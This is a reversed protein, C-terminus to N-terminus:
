IYWDELFKENVELQLSGYLPAKEIVKKNKQIEFSAQLLMDCGCELCSKPLGIEFVEGVASEICGKVGTEVCDTRHHKSSFPVKVKIARSGVLEICLDYGNDILEAFKGSIAFYINEDDFGWFLKEFHFGSSDMASFEADLAISGAGLWEYFDTMKGDIDPMIYNKPKQKIRATKAKNISEFLKVPPEVAILKYINLLHKRFLEDFEDAQPTYHDDGYWWFWDSGEAIMLEKQATSLVDPTITSKAEEFAIKTQSLLEWARNKEEHGMWTSFTGYIWSGPKISDIHASEINQNEFVESFTHTECWESKDLERYLEEFFDMANNDYYEWANEGDLIIPIVAEFGISHYLEKLRGMFDKVAEKADKGSYTFGILDSLSKDRFLVGIKHNNGVSYKKYIDFRYRSELSKFLVDEDAGVYKVGLKSLLELAEKSISGESPWFTTPKVGFVSEYKAIATEIHLTADSRFDAFIKPTEANRDAEKAANKDLLLPLIPHFYPTTSVEIKGQNQLQKYFPIVKGVFAFLERFLETKESQTFRQGKKILEQVLLSNERLANSCWSLLFLVELDLIESLELDLAFKELEKYSSKKTYLEMYRPFPHIMTKLNSFFLTEALFVIEASTLSAVDKQVSSLFLDNVYGKEYEELQEILSPVLNFTAKVSEFKSLYYPLEYYDKIAHLFVWPMKYENQMDDKYYPQHMHWLFALHLKKM